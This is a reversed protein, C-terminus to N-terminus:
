HGGPHNGSGRDMMAMMVGMMAMCSVAYLIAGGGAKGTLLLYGVILLMPACMLLHMWHSHGAHHGSTPETGLQPPDITSLPDAGGAATRSAPADSRYQSGDSYPFNPDSYPFDRDM